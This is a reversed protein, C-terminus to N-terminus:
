SRIPELNVAPVTVIWYDETLDTQVAVMPGRGVYRVVFKTKRLEAEDSGALSEPLAGVLRVEDGPRFPADEPAESSLIASIANILAELPETDAGYHVLHGAQGFILEAQARSLDALADAADATLIPDKSPDLQSALALLLRDIVLELTHEDTM